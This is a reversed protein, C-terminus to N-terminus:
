KDRSKIFKDEVLRFLMLGGREGRKEVWGM